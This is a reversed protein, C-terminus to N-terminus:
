PEQIGPQAKLVEINPIMPFVPFRKEIEWPKRLLDTVYSRPKVEPLRNPEIGLIEMCARAMFIDLGAVVTTTTSGLIGDKIGRKPFRSHYTLSEVLVGLAGSSAMTLAIPSGGDFGWSEKHWPEVHRLELAEENTRLASRHLSVVSPPQPNIFYSFPLHQLRALFTAGYTHQYQIGKPREVEVRINPHIGLLVSLADFRGQGLKYGRQTHSNVLDRFQESFAPSEM